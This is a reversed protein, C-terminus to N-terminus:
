INSYYRHRNQFDRHAYKAYTKNHPIRGFPEHDNFCSEFVEDVAKEAVEKSVNRVALISLIARDRVCTETVRKRQLQGFALYSKRQSFVIGQHHQKLGFHLRFIENVLSCDGSLNAARIESCALHRVNTFWDVHARCHDFTHILEHTVVRNMHAQNRINNQCLVIQSVSADFGGSVNGNCDECSFHRERNVACGSHKMADLLLKVYPNTQLTRLLMLQCKQDSTLFSALVGPQPQEPALQEASAQGAAGPAGAM